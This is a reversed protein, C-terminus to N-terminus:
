VGAASAKGGRPRDVIKALLVILPIGVVFAAWAVATRHGTLPLIWQWCTLGWIMVLMYGGVIRLAPTTKPRKEPPLRRMAPGWFLGFWLIPGFFFGVNELIRRHDDVTPAVAPSTLYRSLYTWGSIWVVAFLVSGIWLKRMSM